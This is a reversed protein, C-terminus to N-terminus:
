SEGIAAGRESMYLVASVVAATLIGVPVSAAVHSFVSGEIGPRWLWLWTQYAPYAVAMAVYSMRSSRVSVAALSFFSASTAFPLSSLSDECGGAALAFLASVLAPRRPALFLASMLLVPFGVGLVKPMLDEVAGGLALVLLCFVLQVVDSKM